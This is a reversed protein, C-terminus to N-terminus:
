WVAHSETDAAGLNAGVRGVDHDDDFSSVFPHIEFLFRQDRNATRPERRAGRAGLSLASVEGEPGEM